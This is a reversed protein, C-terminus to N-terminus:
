FIKDFELSLSFVVSKFPVIKIKVIKFKRIQDGIEKSPLFFFM